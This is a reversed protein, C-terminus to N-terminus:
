QGSTKLLQKFEEYTVVGDNNEDVAEFLRADVFELQSIRGDADRDFRKFAERSLATEDSTLYGDRNADVLNLLRVKKFNFEQRDIGGDGNEDLLEFRAKADPPAPTKAPAPRATAVRAAEAAVQKSVAGGGTSATGTVKKARQALDPESKGGTTSLQQQAIQNRLQSLRAKAGELQPMLGALEERAAVVRPALRALEAKSAEARVALDAREERGATLRSTVTALDTRAAEIRRTIADLSGAAARERELTEEAEIIRASQRALEAEASALKDGLGGSRAMVALAVGWGAIALGALVAAVIMQVRSYGDLM